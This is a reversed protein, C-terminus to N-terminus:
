RICGGRGSHPRFGNQAAEEKSGLTVTCNKCNYYRCGPAHYVRSSRNGHYVGASSPVATRTSTAPTSHGTCREHPRFGQALAEERSALSVTCNACDYHQCGPAHYVKSRSNGHYPGSSSRSSSAATSRRAEWPPIPNPLSWVGLKKAKAVTEAAALVEDSSYYKYHWALGAEVLALSVDTDGIHVRAVLREYDDLEKGVVRVDKGFVLASTFEKARQSFDAGQEPCDIGELRIETQERGDFVTITDGDSVGVVKADFTQAALLLFLLRGM